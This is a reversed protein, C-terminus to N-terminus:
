CKSGSMESGNVLQSTDDDAENEIALVEEFTMRAQSGGRKLQILNSIKIWHQKNDEVREAVEEADKFLKGLLRFFFTISIFRDM